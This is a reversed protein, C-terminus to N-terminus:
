SISTITNDLVTIIWHVSCFVSYICAHTHTHTYYIQDYIPLFLLLRSLNAYHPTAYFSLIGHCWSIGRSAPQWSVEMGGCAKTTHVAVSTAKATKGESFITHTTADPPQPLCSTHARLIFTLFTNLIKTPFPLDSALGPRIHFSLHGKLLLSESQSSCKCPAPCTTTAFVEPCYSLSHMQFKNLLHINSECTPRVTGQM